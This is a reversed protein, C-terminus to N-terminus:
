QLIIQSPIPFELIGAAYPAIEYHGFVIVLQGEDTIYFLQDERIGNFGEKGDFFQEGQKKRLDIQKTIEKNLADVDAIESLCIAKGTRTDINYYTRTTMGHAGGRYDYVTIELSFIDNNSKVHYNTLLEYPLVPYGKKTAYAYNALADKEIGAKLCLQNKKNRQKAKKPM